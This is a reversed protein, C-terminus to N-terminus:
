KEKVASVLASVKPEAEQYWQALNTNAIALREQTSTGAAIQKQIQIVELAADLLKDAIPKAKGDAAKIAEKVSAPVEPAQMLRAAVEEYVVFEGYLAFSKQEPTQATQVPSHACAALLGLLLGVTVLTYCTWFMGAPTVRRM